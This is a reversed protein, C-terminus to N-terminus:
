KRNEKHNNYIEVIKAIANKDAIVEHYNGPGVNYDLINKIRYDLKKAEEESQSRGSPNYEKTRVLFVDINDYLEYAEFIVRSLSPLKYDPAMYALSILMPSDTVTVDVQDAVRSLRFHQKGFIYEQAAFVKRGRQEWTADKAFEPVYETNVGALKLASFVGTASTSKGSGPGGYLNIVVPKQSM